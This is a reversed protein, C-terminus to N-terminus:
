HAPRGLRGVLYGLGMGILLPVLGFVLTGIVPPLILGGGISGILAVPAMLLFGLSVAIKQRRTSARNLFYLLSFAGLAGMPLFVWSEGIQAESLRGFRFYFIALQIVPWALTLVIFAVARKIL